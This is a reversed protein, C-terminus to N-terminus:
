DHRHRRSRLWQAFRQVFRSADEDGFPRQLRYRAREYASLAEDPWQERQAVSRATESPELDTRVVHRGVAARVRGRAGAGYDLPGRAARLLRRIGLTEGAALPNQVGHEEETERLLRRRIFYIIVGALALLLVAEAIHLALAMQPTVPRPSLMQGPKAKPTSPQSKVHRHPIKGITNDGLFFFLAIIPYLVYPLYALLLSWLGGLFLLRM